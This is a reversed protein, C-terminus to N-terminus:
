EDTKVPRDASMAHLRQYKESLEGLSEARNRIILRLWHIYSRLRQNASRQEFYKDPYEGLAARAQSLELQLREVDSTQFVDNDPFLTALESGSEVRAFGPQEDELIRIPFQMPQGSTRSARGINLMEDILRLMRPGAPVHHSLADSLLASQVFLKGPPPNLLEDIVPGIQRPCTITWAMPTLQPSNHYDLVAVPVGHLASELQVTSPTTIVADLDGLLNALPPRKRQYRGQGTVQHLEESLRWHLEVPRDGIRPHDSFYDHLDTLAAVVEARQGDTFWPTRATAILIQWADGQGRQAITRPQVPDWRPIGTIECKGVNGWAEIWRAQSAGICALKHGMLPKFMAGDALDPHEFTNRYELIGDALILVPVRGEDVVRRLISLEEWRYHNHTIVLGADAPPVWASDYHQVISVPHALDDLWGQYVPNARAAPFFVYITDSMISTGVSTPTDRGTM